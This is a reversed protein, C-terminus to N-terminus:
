VDRKGVSRMRRQYKLSIAHFKEVFEAHHFRDGLKDVRLKALGWAALVPSWAVLSFVFWSFPTEGLFVLVLLVLSALIGLLYGWRSVKETTEWWQLKAGISLSYELEDIDKM